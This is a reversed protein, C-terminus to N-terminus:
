MREGRQRLIIFIISLYACTHARRLADAGRREDNALADGYGLPKAIAEGKPLPKRLGGGWGRLPCPPREAASGARGTGQERAGGLPPSGASFGGGWGRLPCPLREAASGAGTDRAGTRGGSPPERCHHQAFFFNGFFVAQLRIKECVIKKREHETAWALRGALSM